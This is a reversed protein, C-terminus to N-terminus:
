VASAEICSFASGGRRPRAASTALSRLTSARMFDTRERHTRGTNTFPSRV